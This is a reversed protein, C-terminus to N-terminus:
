NLWHKSYDYDKETKMHEHTMNHNSQRSMCSDTDGDIEHVFRVLMNGVDHNGEVMVHQSGTNMGM